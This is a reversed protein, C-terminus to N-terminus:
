PKTHLNIDFALSHAFIYWRLRECARTFKVPLLQLFDHIRIPTIILVINGGTSNQLFLCTRYVWCRVFIRVLVAGMKILLCVQLMWVILSILDIVPGGIRLLHWQPTTMIISTSLMLAKQQTAHQCLMRWPSRAIRLCAPHAAVQQYLTQCLLFLHTRRFFHYQRILSNLPWGEALVGNRTWMACALMHDKRLMM